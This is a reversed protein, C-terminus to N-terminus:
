IVAMAARHGLSLGETAPRLAIKIEFVDNGLRFPMVLWDNGGM